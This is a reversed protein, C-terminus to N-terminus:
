GPSEPVLQLRHAIAAAHTRSSAHLKALINSVHVSATKETVVLARAIQRNSRGLVLHGLVERERSTLHLAEAPGIPKAPVAIARGTQLRARAALARLETVLRVAGLGSALALGDQLENTARHMDRREVFAEAARFRAYATRAPQELRRWADAIASWLGPDSAGALRSREARCEQLDAEAEAVASGNISLQALAQQALDLLRNPEDGRHRPPDPAPWREVEDALARLGLSALRIIFHRDDSDVVVRIGMEVAALAGAVDRREIALESRLIYMPALLQPETAQQALEAADALQRCASDLEGRALSLGVQVQTMYAQMLGTLRPLVDLLLADAEEWRCLKLLAAAANGALIGGGTLELGRSRAVGFGELALDAAERLRGAVELVSSLNTYARCIDEMSQANVALTRATQLVQEAGPLDGLMSLDVGLTALAHSEEVTAGVARALVVAEQARDHSERYRSTLMLAGAQSAMARARAASPPQDAMLQVAREYAALSGESDGVEWLYRGLREALVGVRVPDQRADVEDAAATCLVQARTLDGLWRAAEAALELLESRSIGAAAPLAPDRDCLAVARELLQLAEAYAGVQAALRSATAASAVAQAGSGAGYWHHALEAAAGADRAATGEKELASAVVAHLRAREGPLLESYLAERAIAHRFRHGGGGLAQSGPDPLLIGEDFAVRLAVVSRPRRLGCVQVLLGEDMARGVVAAADLVQRVDPGLAEIRSLVVDRVTAPPRLPDEDYAAVLEEAYFANGDTQEALRQMLLPDPERGLLERVFDKLEALTFGTLELRHAGHRTVEALLSRLRPRRPGDTRVSAILLLRERRLNRVLFTLLDLTSEDAWQLDELVLVVPETQGLRSLAGLVLEFFQSRDLDAADHGPYERLPDNLGPVLRLVAALSPGLRKLASPWATVEPLHRFAAIFPAYPLEGAGLEVCNGLLVWSSAVGHCFAELLSSKGVGAEGSVLIVKPSGATAQELAEQLLGLEPERGIFRRGRSLPRSPATDRPTLQTGM